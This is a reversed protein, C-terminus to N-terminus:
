SNIRVTDHNRREYDEAYEMADKLSYKEVVEKGNDLVFYTTHAWTGERGGAHPIYRKRSEISLTTGLGCRFVSSGESEEIRGIKVWKIM